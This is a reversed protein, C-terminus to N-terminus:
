RKWRLYKNVSLFSGIFGVIIGVLLLIGGLYLVFPHPAILTFMNSIVVGGLADYLYIYGFIMCLIPIIAGLIGIIVGEVLFPSRIFGNRAGVNRMIAIEDARALITVKITNQILFVALLSLAVALIAGGNRISNIVNVLTVSSEGGYNVEYVGEIQAIQNAISELYSGDTVEVYYAHHMPNDERFPEFIAQEAEDEFSEVYYQFEQDKDSFKVAKVGDMESISLGIADIQEQQEHDYDILVSIEMSQEINVTFSQVNATFILFIGIIFLTITVASASSLSMAAHRGVGFFGEKIPRFMRGLM